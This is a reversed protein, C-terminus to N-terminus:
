EKINEKIYSALIGNVFKSAKEDEYKKVINVSENVAIKYPLGTKIELIALEIASICVRSIRSYEWDDRLYKNILDVLEDQKEIKLDLLKYIQEKHKEDKIGNDELIYEIVDKPLEEKQMAFFIKFILERISTMSHKKNEKKNIEKGNIVKEDIETEEKKIDKDEEM